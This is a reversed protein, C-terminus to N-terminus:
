DNFDAAIGDLPAALWLGPRLEPKKSQLSLNPLDDVITLGILAASLRMGKIIFSSRRALLLLSL